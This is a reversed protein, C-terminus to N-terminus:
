KKQMADDIRGDLRALELLHRGADDFLLGSDINIHEGSRLWRYRAADRELAELQAIALRVIGASVAGIGGKRKSEYRLVDRLDDAITM